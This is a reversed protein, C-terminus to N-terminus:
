DDSAETPWFDLRGGVMVEAIATYDQSFQRLTNLLVDLALADTTGLDFWCRAWEGQYEVEGQNHMVSMMDDAAAENDYDLYSIDAGAEQVQLNVANFGGLKGLLYWSALIEELYQRDEGTPANAFRFWIWCDFWDCERFSVNM